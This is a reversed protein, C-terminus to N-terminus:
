IWAPLDHPSRIQLWALCFNHTAKPSLVQSRYKIHLVIKQSQTRSMHTKSVRILTLISNYPVWSINHFQEIHPFGVGRPDSTNHKTTNHAMTGDRAVAIGVSRNGM